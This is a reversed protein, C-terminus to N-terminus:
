KRVQNLGCLAIEYFIMSIAWLIFLHHCLTWGLYAGVALFPLAFFLVGILALLRQWPRYYNNDM